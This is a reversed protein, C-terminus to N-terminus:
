DWFLVANVEFIAGNSVQMDEGMILAKTGAEDQVYINNGMVDIMLTSGGVTDISQGDMDMIMERTYRGEITHNLILTKLEQMKTDDSLLSNLEVQNVNSFAQDNPGFYTYETEGRLVSDLEAQKVAAELSAFAQTDVVTQFATKVDLRYVIQAMEARQLLDKSMEITEPWADKLALQDVFLALDTESNQGFGIGYSNAIIKAAQDAQINLDTKFEGDSYGDVVNGKQAVCIYNRHPNNAAVDPFVLDNCAAITADDYKTEIIIKTLEGRSINSEPRFTGDSYGSVMGKSELHVIADYYMTTNMNIDPFVALSPAATLSFGAVTGVVAKAVTSVVKRM